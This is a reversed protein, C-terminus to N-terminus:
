IHAPTVYLIFPLAKKFFGNPSSSVSGGDKGDTLDLRIPSDWRIGNPDRVTHIFQEVEHEIHQFSYSASQTTWRPLPIILHFVLIRLCLGYCCVQGASDNGM